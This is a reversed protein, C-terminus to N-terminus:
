ITFLLENYTPFPWYEKAVLTELADCVARLGDMLKLVTDRCYESAQLVNGAKIIDASKKELRGTLADAKKVLLSIRNFLATEAEMAAPQSLARGGAIVGGLAGCYKIAAPIIERRSMQAMTRSEITVTKVYSDLLIEYRSALEAGSLVGQREFLGVSDRGIYRPIADPTTRLESLGRRKAEARWEEAYNNGNFIIRKHKQYFEGILARAAAEFGAGGEAGELRDAIEKLADAAITNLVFTPCAINMASGVMRFEFKNGTFAFPSTRNRDSADQAICPMHKAGIKLSVEAASARSKGNAIYELIETLEQGLYVSIIAPPAENGGLRLDNAASAVSLRLLDQYEDAAKIVATLFVLFQLNNQPERGPKLLNEGDAALSWNNHKGSGSVSMFPKEHLLCALGQRSAVKKMYEMTLQNHDTAINCTTYVPALEHQCPATENHETKAYVGVRWLEADLERMFAKVKDKINGYYHGEHEQGKAPPAGFLTRGCFKLDQRKEYLERAILFYEQEAGVNPIVRKPEKGFLKLVRKAQKEVADMSRLLPTKKDLSAGDFSCFASPIYLTNDKVFAYSAPDWATYGRAEFTARLGGSPFSSADSEGKILEKGSFRAIAGGEKSPFIFAEHKEATIGTMPQFWHTFHTAGKGIAWNKMGEAVLAAAEGTLPTGENVAGSMANYAAEPLWEKMAAGNFVNCGFIEEIKEM